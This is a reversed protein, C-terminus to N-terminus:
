FFRSAVVAEAPLQLTFHPLASHYFYDWTYSTVFMISNELKETQFDRLPIYSVTVFCWKGGIPKALLPQPGGTM